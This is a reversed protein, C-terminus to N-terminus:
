LNPKLNALILESAGKDGFTGVRISLETETPSKGKMKFAVKGFMNAKLKGTKNSIAFQVPFSNSRNGKSGVRIVKGKLDLNPLNDAKIYYGKKALFNILEKVEYTTSSFGHIIYIGYKGKENISYNNEDFFQSRM